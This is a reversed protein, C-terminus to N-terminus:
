QGDRALGSLLPLAHLRSDQCDFPGARDMGIVALLECGGTPDAAVDVVTAVPQGHEVIEAGVPIATASSFRALGRKAQGLFHTRSVIEQGPYCGKRVSFAALRDLSLMHPTYHEATDGDIRPLGHRLGHLRFRREATPDIAPRNPGPGSLHLRCEGGAGGLDLRITDPGIEARSRGTGREDDDLRTSELSSAPAIPFEVRAIADPQAEIAVKSRFILGRLADAFTEAALDPLWIRVQESTERILAFLARVRGKSTLWGNWQWHGDALRGLDNMFQAQCFALADRGTVGVLGGHVIAGPLPESMGITSTFVSGLM